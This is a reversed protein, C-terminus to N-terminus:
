HDIGCVDKLGNVIGDIGNDDWKILLIPLLIVNFLLVLLGFLIYKM